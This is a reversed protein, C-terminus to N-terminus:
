DHDFRELKTRLTQVARSYHTKVSGQSISMAQATQKVDLGEWTRLTFAQRQREPLQGLALVLSPGFDALENARDPSSDAPALANTIPDSQPSDSQWWGFLRSRIARRRHYDTTRNKLVRYFLAPWDKTARDAYKQVLKFMADQVIDMADEPHKVSLLTMAYARKEVGALFQDLGKHQNM